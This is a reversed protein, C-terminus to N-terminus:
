SYILLLSSVVSTSDEKVKNQESTVRMPDCLSETPIKWHFTVIM